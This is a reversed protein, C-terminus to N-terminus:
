QLQRSYPAPPGPSPDAPNNQQLQKVLEPDLRQMQTELISINQQVKDLLDTQPYRALIETLLGHSARLLEKKQELDSTKGARVFLSAAEKRMQAAALNATETIKMRANVEYETGMLASFATIAADYRQADLLNSATDWKATLEAEQMQQQTEMEQIESHSVEYYTKQLIAQLEAPLYYRTMSKLMDTAEVFKKAAVLSDIKVLQRDFWLKLQDVAFAKLQLARIAVPSGAHQAVFVNIANNIRPADVRYDHKQFERLLKMYAVMDDSGPAMSHLFALQEEAWTKETAISEHGSIVREYYSEAAAINGDALFLDAIERQLSLPEIALDGSALMNKYHTTAAAVDGTYQLSLGYALRISLSPKQDPFDRVFREYAIIAEQYSGREAYSAIVEQAAAFSLKPEAAPTFEYPAPMDMALLEGCGSELFAIDLQQIKKPDAAALRDVPLTDGQQMTELLLSYGSLIRDLQQMCDAEPATLEATLEDEQATASIALWYEFRSGYAALRHQVFEIDAPDPQVERAGTAEGSPFISGPFPTAATGDIQPGVQEPLPPQAAPAPMPQQRSPAPAEPGGSTVVPQIGGCGSLLFALFASVIILKFTKNPLM